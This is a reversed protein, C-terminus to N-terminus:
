RGEFEDQSVPTCRITRYAGKYGLITHENDHFKIHDNVVVYYQMRTEDIAYGIYDGQHVDTNKEELQRHYIAFTFNGDEMHRGTNNPNYSMNTAEEIIPVIKLEIPPEFKISDKDAENYVDDKQTRQRDVKFLVVTMNLDEEVYERGMEIELDFEDEGFWSNSRNIPIRKNNERAM